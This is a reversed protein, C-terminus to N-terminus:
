DMVHRELWAELPAVARYRRECWDLLASSYFEDPIPLSVGAFLGRYLLLEANPHAQDYGRPVRKYREGWLAYGDRVMGDVLGRLEVGRRADVVADRYRGLAAPTFEHMGGGVMLTPPDLHFYFGPGEAKGRDARGFPVGVHAKYPSKDRSFRVDRYIRFASGHIGGGAPGVVATLRESMDLAFRRVPELVYREYETKHAQFWVKNNNERLGELFSIAEPRFGSFGLNENQGTRDTDNM